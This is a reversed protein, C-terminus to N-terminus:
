RARGVLQTSVYGTAKSVPDFVRLWRGEERLLRLPEGRKLARLARAKTTPASRLRVGKKAVTVIALESVPVPTAAASPPAGPGASRKEIWGSMGVGPVWVRFWPGRADLRLVLDGVDLAGFEPARSAPEQRLATERTIQLARLEAGGVTAPGAAERPRPPASAAGAAGRPGGFPAGACGAAAVALIALRRM